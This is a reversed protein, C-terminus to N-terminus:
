LLSHHFQNRELTSLTFPLVIGRFLVPPVRLFLKLELLITRKVPFMRNMFLCFHLLLTCGTPTLTAM